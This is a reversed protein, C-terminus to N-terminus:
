STSMIPKIKSVTDFGLEYAMVTFVDTHFNYHSWPDWGLERSILTRASKSNITSLNRSAAWALALGSHASDAGTRKHSIRVSRGTNIWVDSGPAPAFWTGVGTDFERPYQWRVVEVWSHDPARMTDGSFWWRLSTLEGATASFLELGQVPAAHPLPADDLWGACNSCQPLNAPWEELVFRGTRGLLTSPPLPHSKPLCRPTPLSANPHKDLTRAHPLKMFRLQSLDYPLAPNGGYAANLYKLWPSAGGATVVSPVREVFDVIGKGTCLSFCKCAPSHAAHVHYRDVSNVARSNGAKARDEQVALQEAASRLARTVEATEFGPVNRELKNVDCSRFWSCEREAVSVSFFHCCRLTLCRRLCAQLAVWRSTLESPALEWSGKRTADNCVYPTSQRRTQECFGPLSTPQLAPLEADGRAGQAAQAKRTRPM